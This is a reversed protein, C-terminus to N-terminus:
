CLLLQVFYCSNPYKALEGEPVRGKGESAERYSDWHKRSEETTKLSAGLWGRWGWGGDWLSIM